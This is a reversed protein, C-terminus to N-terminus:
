QRPPTRPEIQELVARVTADDVHLGADVLSRFVEAASDIQGQHWARVVVGLTGIRRLGLASACRRAAKDDVVM